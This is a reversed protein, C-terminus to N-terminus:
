HKGKQSIQMLYSQVADALRLARGTEIYMYRNKGKWQAGWHQMALHNALAGIAMVALAAESEVARRMYWQGELYSLHAGWSQTVM